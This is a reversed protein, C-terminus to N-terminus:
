VQGKLVRDKLKVPCNEFMEISRRLLDPDGSRFATDFAATVLHNSGLTVASVQWLGEVVKELTRTEHAGYNMASISIMRERLRSPVAKKQEDQRLNQDPALTSGLAPEFRTAFGPGHQRALYSWAYANRWVPLDLWWTGM